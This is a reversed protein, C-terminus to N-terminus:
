IIICVIVPVFKICNFDMKLVSKFFVIAVSGCCKQPMQNKHITGIPLEIAKLGIFRMAMAAGFSNQLECKYNILRLTKRDRAALFDYISTM